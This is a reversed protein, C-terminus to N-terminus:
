AVSGIARSCRVGSAAFEREGEREGGRAVCGYDRSTYGSPRARDSKVRANKGGNKGAPRQGRATQSASDKNRASLMKVSAPPAENCTTHKERISPGLIQYRHRPSACAQVSKSGDFGICSVSIVTNACWGDATSKKEDGM